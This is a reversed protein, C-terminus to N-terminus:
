MGRHAFMTVAMHECYILALENQEMIKLEPFNSFNRMMNLLQDKSSKSYVALLWEFTEYVDNLPKRSQKKFAGFFVDPYKQYDALEEFSIPATAIIAKGTEKIKYTGYILKQSEMVVADTLTGIVENGTDDPIYYDHGIKLPVIETDSYSHSPLEPEFTPPPDQHMEISDLLEEIDLYNQKANYKERLSKYLKGYGFDNIKFGASIASCGVGFGELQHTSPYNTFLVYASDPEKGKITLSSETRVTVDIADTMWKPIKSGEQLEEYPLNVDIFIIRPHQSKKSLAKYLQDRISGTLDKSTFNDKVGLVGLRRISKAEVTYKKGSKKFTAVCECHTSSSDREDELEISYGAKILMAYVYTEYYAGPFQDKQKLRKILEQQLKNSYEDTPQNHALLYLNYSLHIFAHMAGTPAVVHVKGPVKITNKQHACVLDYWQLIPHRDEFPKAIEDNGWQSDLVFKIYDNLFDIFTMWKKSWYLKGAVAVIRFGEHATSVVARGLGQQQEKLIQRAKAENLAKDRLENIVDVHQLSGHCRKFKAGSGCPCPDNRGIKNGQYRLEHEM